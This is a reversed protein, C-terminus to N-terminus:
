FGYKLGFQMSRASAASVVRGFSPTALATGPNAYNVNNFANFMEWRFQVFHNETIRFRKMIGADWTHMGPGSLIGRGSNGFTFAAPTVFCSTDFWRTVSPSSLSGDCVRNPRSTLGVNGTDGPATITLAGGTQLTTIGSL